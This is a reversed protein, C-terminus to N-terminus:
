SVGLAAKAAKWRKLRDALGNTGGNIRKTLTVFLDADALANLGHTQWYWGGLRCAMLPEAALDPFQELDAGLTPGARRYNGRGTLQPLGRGRYRFGDGPQTNGLEAAKDGPPEYRAQAPTPKDGWLEVMWKLGGTEHGYQALFAAQRKPTDIVFEQMAAGMYPAFTQAVAPSAGTCAQLLEPTV